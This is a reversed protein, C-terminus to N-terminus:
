TKDHYPLLKTVDESKIGIRKSHRCCRGHCAKRSDQGEFDYM